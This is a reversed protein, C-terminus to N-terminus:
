PWSLLSIESHLLDIKCTASGMFEGDAELMTTGSLDKITISSTSFYHVASHDIKKGKKLKGINRIYDMKSVKGLIVVEFKGDNIEAHPAIYIGSGFRKGNAVALALIEGSWSRNDFRCEITTRKYSLFTRTVAWLFSLEAGLRKQSTELKKVVQGGLGISAINIFYRVKDIENETQVIKGIDVKSTKGNTLAKELDSMNSSASISHALDNATGAPIIGLVPNIDAASNKAQMIGNLVENVTGDGGVALLTTSGNLAAERALEISHGPHESIFVEIPYSLVSLEIALSLAKNSVGNVIAAIQENPDV